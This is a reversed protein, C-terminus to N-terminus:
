PKRVEVENAVSTVGDVREADRQARLKDEQTAVIGVLTVRGNTVYVSVADLHDASVAGKVDEAIRADDFSSSRSAACSTLIAIVVPFFIAAATALRASRSHLRSV